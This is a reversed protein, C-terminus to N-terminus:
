VYCLMDQIGYHCLRCIRFPFPLSWINIALSFALLRLMYWLLECTAGVCVVSSENKFIQTWVVPVRSHLNVSQPVKM